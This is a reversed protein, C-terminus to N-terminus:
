GDGDGAEEVMVILKLPCEAACIGCGKCHYYDFEIKGDARRVIAPEPCFIWCLPCGTCKELDMLVPKSSRWDATKFEATSGPEAIAGGPLIEGLEARSM